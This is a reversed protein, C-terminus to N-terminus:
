RTDDSNIEEDFRFINEDIMIQTKKTSSTLIELAENVGGLEVKYLRRRKKDLLFDKLQNPNAEGLGKFRNRSHESGDKLKHEEDSFYYVDNQEFLPTEAVYLFGHEILYQMHKAFFGLLLARIHCGDSDADTAIIIKGYNPNSVDNYGDVGLGITTIIDSLEKHDLVPLIDKGASNLVKGKLPCIAHIEVNRASKLSAGASDGEVIYLEAQSRDKTTCEIVKEPATKKTTQSSLIVKSKILTKKNLNSITGVYELLRNYHNLFFEKEKKFIKKFESKLVESVQSYTYSNIESVCEKTQSNYKPDSCLVICNIDLANGEYSNLEGFFDRFAERYTRLVFNRHKGLNVPLGNVSGSFIEPKDLSGERINFNVIFRVSNKENITDLIQINFSFESGSYSEKYPAGNINIHINKKYIKHLLYPFYKLDPIVTSNSKIISFDPKFAVLTSVKSLDCNKFTDLREISESQLLGKKYVLKYFSNKFCKTLSDHMNEKTVRVLLIFEESLANTVSIGVGHTGTSISDGSFKSGAHLKEVALRAQTYMTGDPTPVSSRKLPIGRGNDTVILFGDIDTYINVTDCKKSNYLEDISNDVVERFIVSPNDVSGVYMQPRSRVNEPFDLFKVENNNNNNNKM